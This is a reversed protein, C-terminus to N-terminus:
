QCVTTVIVQRHEVEIVRVWYLDKAKLVALHVAAYDGLGLQKHATPVSADKDELTIVETQALNNLSRLAYM